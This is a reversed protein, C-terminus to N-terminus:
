AIQWIRVDTFVEVGGLGGAAAPGFGDTARTTEGIHQIELDKEAAITFRGAIHSRTSNGAASSNQESSGILTDAADTVNRLRTKHNSVTRAPASAEIYYTGAPLTIQNTALSAGAIENTLATNLDRTRWAGSTFTGGATGAAKEDRLHLLSSGFVDLASVGNIELGKANIIGAGKDGGTAGEAWMGDTFNWVPAKTGAVIAEIVLAAAEAANTPSLLKAYLQILDRTVGTSSKGQLSLGGLLDSAAPSASDRLLEILPGLTAGADSSIARLADGAATLNITQIATWFNARDLLLTGQEYLKWTGTVLSATNVWATNAGNRIKLINLTTDFWPQYQYTTGPETLGASASALAQLASNLDARVTAGDANAISFDNQSM